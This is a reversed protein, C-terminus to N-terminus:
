RGRQGAPRAALALSRRRSGTVPGVARRWERPRSVPRAQRGERSSWRDRQNLFARQRRDRFGTVQGGGQEVLPRGIYCRATTTVPLPPAPHWPHPAPSRVTAREPAVTRRPRLRRCPVVL